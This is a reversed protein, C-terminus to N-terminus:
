LGDFAPPYIVEGRLTPDDPDYASLVAVQAAESPAWDPLHLRIGRGPAFEFGRAGYFRPSGELVVLPEGAADAAALAADVLATGIGHGQAAPAVALPSLMVISRDGQEGRLVCGDVMVHGVVTGDAVAVLSLEPRYGPSARIAEVLDGHSEAEFAAVVVARIAGFDETQEPRVVVQGAPGATATAPTAQEDGDNAM